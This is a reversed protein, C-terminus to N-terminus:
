TCSKEIKVIKKKIYMNKKKKKKKTSLKNNLGLLSIFVRVGLSVCNKKGKLIKKKTKKNQYTLIFNLPRSRILSKPLKRIQM